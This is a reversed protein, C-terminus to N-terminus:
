VSSGRRQDRGVNEAVGDRRRDQAVPVAVGGADAAGGPEPGGSMGTGTGRSSDRTASWARRGRQGIQPPAPQHM